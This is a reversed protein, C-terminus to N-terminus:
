LASELYDLAEHYKDAKLKLKIHMGMLCTTLNELEPMEKCTPHSRLAIVINATIIVCRNVLTADESDFANTFCELLAEIGHLEFFRKSIGHHGRVIASIASLAKLKTKTSNSSDQIINLFRDLLDTEFLRHQVEVNDQSFDLALDIDCVLNTLKEYLIEVKEVDSTSPNEIENLEQIIEKMQRIPDSEKVLSQMAEMLWQRDEQNMPKISEDTKHSGQASTSLALLDKLSSDGSNINTSM